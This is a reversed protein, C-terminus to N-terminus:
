VHYVLTFAVINGSGFISVNDYRIVSATPGNSYACVMRGTTAFERGSGVFTEAAATFPLTVIMSDTATGVTIIEVRATATVVRGLKTYVGSASYSTLSGTEATVTPTWSGEEYDDLTNPDTSPVQTVPFQLRGGSLVTAGGLIAATLTKNTLTQTDTTGVIDGTVGHTSTDAIHDDLDAQTAFEGSTTPSPLPTQELAAIRSEIVTLDAPGSTQALASVQSEIPSLDAPGPIQAVTAMSADIAAHPDQAEPRQFLAVASDFNDTSGTFLNYFFLFWTRDIQGTRPDILPVRPPTIAAAISSATAM